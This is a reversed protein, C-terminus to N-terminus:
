RIRVPSEEMWIRVALQSSLQSLFAQIVWIVRETTSCAAFRSYVVVDAECSGDGVWVRYVGWRGLVEVMALIFIGSGGIM